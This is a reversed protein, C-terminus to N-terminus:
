SAEKWETLEDSLCEPCYLEITIEECTSDGYPHQDFERVIELESYKGWFSCDNECKYMTMTKASHQTSFQM